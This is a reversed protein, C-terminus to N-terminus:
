GTKDTFRSLHSSPLAYSQLVVMGRDIRSANNRMSVLLNELHASLKPESSAVEESLSLMEEAKQRLDTDLWGAEILATAEEEARQLEYIKADRKSLLANLEEQDEYGLSLFGDAM